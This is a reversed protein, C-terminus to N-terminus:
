GQSKNSRANQNVYNRESARVQTSFDLYHTLRHSPEDFEPPRFACEIAGCVIGAGHALSGPKWPRRLFGALDVLALFGFDALLRGKDILTAQARSHRRWIFVRNRVEMRGKAFSAPRGSPAQHHEVKADGSCVVRWRKGVRLSMEMDEGQSYGDFFGSFRESELVQRRFTFACGPLLDVDRTGGFPKLMSRPNSTGCHAYRMPEIRPIIGLSLRIRWRMILPRDLENTICGGIAGISKATDAAFLERIIRFYNPEPLADDDLFFVIEASSADIGINRQRTLGPPTRVYKLIFPCEEVGLSQLAEETATDPSGDVIVIEGPVSGPTTREIEIIRNLLSTIDVARKFTPIILCCDALAHSRAAGCWWGFLRPGEAQERHRGTASLSVRNIM